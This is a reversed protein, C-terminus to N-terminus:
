DVSYVELYSERLYFKLGAISRTGFEAPKVPNSVTKDLVYFKFNTALLDVFLITVPEVDPVFKGLWSAFLGTVGLHYTVYRFEGVQEGLRTYIAVIGAGAAFRVGAAFGAFAGWL